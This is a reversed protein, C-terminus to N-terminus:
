RSAQEDAIRKGLKQTADAAYAHCGNPDIFPDPTAGTARAALKDDLGSLAPHVTVILDCPLRDVIEISHQFTEARSPHSADGTFRFGDDSIPNLSDAYVISLCRGADCARWTWTTSGPTHGPMLHPTITVDGITLAQGDNVAEVHAVPPYRLKAEHGSHFQPDDATPEGHEIAQAGPASAAVRAGSLRQLAAIGGAHDYHAHSNVILRVDETRLGLARINADIMAASQPLGGDLLIMGKSTTILVSSLGAVGVYYSNGFLKFPAHPRNWTECSDCQIPTELASADRTPAPDPTPTAHPASPGCAAGSSMLTALLAISRFGTV